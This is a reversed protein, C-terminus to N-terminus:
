GWAPTVSGMGRWRWWVTIQAPGLGLTLHGLTDTAVAGRVVSYHLRSGRVREESM